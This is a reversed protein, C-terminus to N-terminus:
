DIVYTKRATRILKSSSTQANSVINLILQLSALTNQLRSNLSTQTAHNLESQDRMVTHIQIPLKRTFPRKSLALDPTKNSQNRRLDADGAYKSYGLFLSM